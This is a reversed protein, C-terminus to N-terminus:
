FTGVLNVSAHADQSRFSVDPLVGVFRPASEATSEPLEEPRTLLFVVATVAAAASVGLCVDAIINNTIVDDRLEQLEAQSASGNKEDFTSKSSTSRVMFVTMPIAAAVSVGGFIWFTIPIPREYEIPPPAGDPKTDAPKSPTAPSSFTLTRELKGSNPVELEFKQDPAGEASVAFSYAGPHIKLTKEGVPITYRNTKPLGESPTRTAVLKVERDTKITLEAVVAKLKKLDSEVQERDDKAIDTKRALYAEFDAIADGDRELLLECIAMGRLAKLSGSMGYAKSFEVWAEECKPGSPDNYFGAGAEMHKKAQALKADEEPTARAVRAFSVETLLSSAIAAILAGRSRSWFM